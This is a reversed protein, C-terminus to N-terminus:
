ASSMTLPQLPEGLLDKRIPPVQRLLAVAEKGKGQAMLVKAQRDFQEAEKLRRRDGASLRALTEVRELNWRAETVDSDDKGLKQTLIAVVQFRMNRAAVWDERDRHIEAIFEMTGIADEHNKGLVEQEIALVSEAAHFAETLKGQARLERAQQEIRARENLREQQAGTLAQAESPGAEAMRATAFLSLVLALVRHRGRKIWVPCYM